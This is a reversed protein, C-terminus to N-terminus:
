LEPSCVRCWLRVCKCFFSFFYYVSVCKLFRSARDGGVATPPAHVRRPNNLM